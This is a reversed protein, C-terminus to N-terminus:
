HQSSRELKSMMPLMGVLRGLKSGTAKSEKFSNWAKLFFIAVLRCMEWDGMSGCVLMLTIQAVINAFWEICVNSSNSYAKMVYSVNTLKLRGQKSISTLLSVEIFLDQRSIVSKIVAYKNLWKHRLVFLEVCKVPISHWPHYLLFYCLFYFVECIGHSFIHYSFKKCILNQFNYYINTTLWDFDVSKLVM